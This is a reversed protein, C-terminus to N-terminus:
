LLLLTMYLKQTPYPYLRPPRLGPLITLHREYRIALRRFNHFWAFLRELKRRRRHRRLQRDDQTRAHRNARHPAIPEIGARMLEQDLGDGNRRSREPCAEAKDEILRPPPEVVFRQELTFKGRTLKHPQLVQRMRLLLFVM